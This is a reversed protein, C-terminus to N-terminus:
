PRCVDCPYYGNSAAEVATSFFLIADPDFGPALSANLYRSCNARCYTKIGDVTYGV